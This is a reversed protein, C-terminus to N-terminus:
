GELIPNLMRVYRFHSYVWQITSKVWKCPIQLMHILIVMISTQWGLILLPKYKWIWFATFRLLSIEIHVCTDVVKQYAHTYIYMIVHILENHQHIESHYHSSGVWSFLFCCFFCRKIMPCRLDRAPYGINESVFFCTNCGVFTNLFSRTWELWLKFCLMDIEDHFRSM